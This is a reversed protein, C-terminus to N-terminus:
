KLNNNDLSLLIRYNYKMHEADNNANNNAITNYGWELLAFIIQIFMVQIVHISGIDTQM